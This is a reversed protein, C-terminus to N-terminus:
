TECPIEQDVLSSRTQRMSPSRTIATPLPCAFDDRFDRVVIPRVGFNRNRDGNTKGIRGDIPFELVVNLRHHSSSAAVHTSAMAGQCALTAKSQGKATIIRGAIVEIDGFLISAARQVRQVPWTGRASWVRRHSRGCLLRESARRSACSGLRRPTSRWLLEVTM